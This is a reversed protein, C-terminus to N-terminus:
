GASESAKTAIVMFIPDGPPSEEPNAFGGRIGEFNGAQHMYSAVVEMRGRDSSARWIRVAKTPFMRNSFTVIFIGGPKLIRNVHAFTDVPQTLYQASVTIVAADFTDDDFPLAPNRNVDHVVSEDLDPNDKMEAANLGLGVLRRKRHGAPWHSRWSSMLDLVVSNEPIYERFIRSVAAIAVDDIHVVLRPQAYFVADNGDDERQFADPPYPSTTAPRRPLHSPLHRAM